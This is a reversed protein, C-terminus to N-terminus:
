CRYFVRVTGSAPQPYNVYHGSALLPFNQRYFDYNLLVKEPFRHRIKRSM